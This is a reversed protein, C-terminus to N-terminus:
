DAPRGLHVLADGRNVVPSRTHGIVLGDKTARVAALSNGFADDITGLVDRRAVRDGAAVDLHLIGSRGARLWTTSRVIIPEVAAAEAAGIVGLHVLVRRVGAVGTAIAEEDFRWAEGAEYLLVPKGRKAAARRLTGPRPRAHILAPPAFATALDARVEWRPDPPLGSLALLFLGPDLRALGRLAAGRLRPSSHTLLEIMVDTSERAGVAALAEVLELLLAHDLDPARLMRRLAPAANVDGLEALARVASIIVRADRRRPDLLELLAPLAASERLAGLGRAAIAVGISGQIGALTSLPGVARPDGAQGLAHAVPWWWLIPEEEDTLVTAALAEYAGLSALAYLGSRFAEVRPTLPYGLEEPDVDYAETVHRAVMTQIADVTQTAGLRALAEAARGQVVPAVDLLASVLPESATPEGILGLGFAAMERVEMQEDSLAGVLTEVGGALGVRGIAM